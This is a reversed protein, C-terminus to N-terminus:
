PKREGIHNFSCAQALLLYESLTGLQVNANKGIALLWLSKMGMGSKRWSGECCIGLLM